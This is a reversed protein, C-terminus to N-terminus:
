STLDGDDTGSRIILNVAFRAMREKAEHALGSSHFDQCRQQDFLSAFLTGRPKPSEPDRVLPSCLM